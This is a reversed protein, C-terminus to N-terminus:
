KRFGRGLVVAMALALLIVSALVCAQSVATTMPPMPYFSGALFCVVAAALLAVALGIKRGRRRAQLYATGLVWILVGAGLALRWWRM